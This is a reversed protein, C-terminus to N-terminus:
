ALALFFGLVNLGIIVLAIMLISNARKPTEDKWVFYMIIGILPILVALIAWGAGLSDNVPVPQPPYYAGGGYQPVNGNNKFMTEAENVSGGGVNMMMYVRDWPLPVENGLLVQTGPAIIVRQGRYMVGGINSGNSSTDEYVYSGNNYTLTAHHRSVTNGSVIIDCSSSRGITVRKM